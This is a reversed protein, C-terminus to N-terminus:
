LAYQHLVEHLECLFVFHQSVPFNCTDDLPGTQSPAHLLSSIVLSLDACTNTVSKLAQKEAHTVYGGGGCVCM